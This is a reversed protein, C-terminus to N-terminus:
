SNIEAEHGMTKLTESCSRLDDAFEQLPERDSPKLLRGETVKRIWAEAITFSDDFREALLQRARTYGVVPDMVTCCEIVKRAKGTSYQILRALKAGEDASSNAVTNEFSRIFSWYKLPDGDFSVLQTAPLRVADILERQQRQGEAFLQIISYPRCLTLSLQCFTM